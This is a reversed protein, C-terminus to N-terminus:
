EEPFQSWGTLTVGGRQQEEGVVKTVKGKQLSGTRVWIADADGRLSLGVYKLLSKTHMRAQTHAHTHRATHKAPKLATNVVIFTCLLESAM